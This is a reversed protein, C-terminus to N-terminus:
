SRTLSVNRNRGSLGPPPEFGREAEVHGPLGTSPYPLLCHSGSVGRCVPEAFPPPPRPYLGNGGSKSKVLQSFNPIIILSPFAQLPCIFSTHYVVTKQSQEDGEWVDPVSHPQSYDWVVTKQKSLLRHTFIAISGLSSAMTCATNKCCTFDKITSPRYNAALLIVANGYGIIFILAIAPFLLRRCIPHARM